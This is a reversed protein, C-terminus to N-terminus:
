QKCIINQFKLKAQKKADEKMSIDAISNNNKKMGIYKLQEDRIM